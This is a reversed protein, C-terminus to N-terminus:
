SKKAKRVLKQARKETRGVMRGAAKKTQMLKNSLTKGKRALLSAKSRLKASDHEVRDTVEDKMEMMKGAAKRLKARKKEDSLVITAAGAALGTALGVAGVVVPSVGHKKDHERQTLM